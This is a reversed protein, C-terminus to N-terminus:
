PDLFGKVSHVFVDKVFRLFEAESIEPASITVQLLKRAYVKQM